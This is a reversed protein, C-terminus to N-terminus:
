GNYIGGVSIILRPYKISVNSVTWRTGMFEVYKMTGCNSFAFEDGIISFKTSFSINDNTSTTNDSRKFNEDVLDCRYPVATKKEVWVGNGEDVTRTYGVTICAKNM